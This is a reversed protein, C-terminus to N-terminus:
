ECMNNTALNLTITPKSLDNNGNSNNPKKITSTKTLPCHWYNKIKRVSNEQYQSHYDRAFLTKGRTAVYELM